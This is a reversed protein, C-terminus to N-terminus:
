GAGARGWGREGGEIEILCSDPTGDQEHDRVAFRQEQPHTPYPACLRMVNEKDNLPQTLSTAESRTYRRWWITTIAFSNLMLKMAKGMFAEVPQLNRNPLSVLSGRLAGYKTTVIRSSIRREPTVNASGCEALQLLLVIVSLLCVRRCMTRVGTSGWESMMDTM